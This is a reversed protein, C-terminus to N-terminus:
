LKEILDTFSACKFVAEENSMGIFPMEYIDGTSRKISYATIGGDSGFLFFDPAYEAVDYDRNLQVMASLPWLLIYNDESSVSGGNSEQFFDIFGSPLNFNTEKIFTEIETQSPPNNKSISLM